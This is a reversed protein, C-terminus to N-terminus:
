RGMAEKLRAALWETEALSPVGGGASYRHGDTLTVRLDEYVKNGSQMGVAPGVDAINAAPIRRVSRIGLTRTEIVLETRDATVRMSRFWALIVGALLLLDFLAFILGFLWVHAVTLLIVVIGTWLITFGTIAFAAGKNRAAPFILEIGSQWPRCIVPSDAPPHYSALRSQTAERYSEAAAPSDSEATRYVPVEFRAVYDLGPVAAAAELRWIINTGDSQRADAPIAFSVPAYVGRGDRGLTADAEDQWLVDERTSSNRGSREVIRHICSFRLNVTRADSLRQSAHLTAQLGKGIVGPVTSLELISRGFKGREATAVIAQWLLFLGVLPFVFGILAAKNHQDLFARLAFWGTPASILNWVAAFAWMGWAAVRGGDEIRGSAWDKRWVWPQDPARELRALGESQRRRAVVTLGILWFGVGGFVLAFITLLGAQALQHLQFSLVARTGAFVGAAAFPLAFLLMCGFSLRSARAPGGGPAAPTMAPSATM